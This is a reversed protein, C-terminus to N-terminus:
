EETSNIYVILNKINNLGTGASISQNGILGVLVNSNYKPDDSTVYRKEINVNNSNGWSEAESVTKGIFSPVRKIDAGTKLDKGAVKQVYPTNADFSFETIREAEEIELNVKMMKIIDDLSSEYYGLASSYTNTKENYVNNDYVELYAKQIVLADKDTILNMVMNKLINYSSLIQERSMNVSINNSIASLIDKFETVTNLSLLKKSMAEVILQQNQIRQLDGTPLSHRHRAYALTQEGNLHQFGKKLCIQNDFNRHSDQECFPYTVEVDIGKLAEVLDVVGRFNIKAYYDIDIDTLKKITNIVCSLGGASSSNIKAKNNNRCTIPVYLDRPISFISANLTKPNFTILMLTDGNLSTADDINDETSDVGMILLTFPENLTKNSNIKVENKEQIISKYVIKTEESINAYTDESSFDNVYNGQVFAGDIQHNYLDYILEEYTDYSKINYKLKNEKIIKNAVKYGEIDDENNIMGVNNITATDKLTILYGTYITTDRDTLNGIEGYVVDIFYFAVTLILSLIFTIIIILIYKVKNKNVIYTYGKYIYYIFYMAILFILVIRITTEIGSLKILTISFLLSSVLFVVIGLLYIILRFKHTYFLRKLKRKM